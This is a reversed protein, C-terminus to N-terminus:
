SPQTGETRPEHPHPTSRSATTSAGTPLPPSPSGNRDPDVAHATDRDLADDFEVTLRHNESDLEMLLANPADPDTAHLLQASL